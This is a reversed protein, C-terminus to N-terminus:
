LMGKERAVTIMEPERWWKEIGLDEAISNAAIYGPGFIVMGGSFTSAGCVYLRNIPTVNSSCEENPRLYGMQFPIYAGQKIGGHVMDHLKNEIDLPTSIYRWLINDPTLNPVYRQLTAVCKDAQEERIRYWAEPGGDKLNYPAHMSILATHKGPPAQKSDHISPFCCNFGYHRLEGSLVADFHGTVDAETDYGVIYVFANDVDPNDEAALFHPRTDLALHVGLLSAKEWEWDKVRQVFYQDLHQEGVLRLFTQHPDISSAVFKNAEIITGDDLEVGKATGNEILIRKITISGLIMGGNEYIVKSLVHALNHTGGVVLRYASARNIFLPVLYGLGELDYDLGWFCAVSLMMARVQDNEFLEDVIQKPTKETLENLERGIETTQLRAVQEIPPVPKCYSAPALFEDMYRKFRDAIERYTEADKTSFKGISECTREIDPYLCISRGDSFPMVMTPSPHIFRLGYDEQLRLDKFIPAYDVMMHYIAHTNHVFGPLTVKETCLGGGMEYRRELLLIKLGAKALYAAVTLGNPGAGIIIGDYKAM